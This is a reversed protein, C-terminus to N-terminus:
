QVDGASVVYGGDSIPRYSLGRAMSIDHLVTEVDVANSYYLTLPSSRVERPISSSLRIPTGFQQELAAIIIPLPQATVAFGGRRWATVRALSTDAPASVGGSADVRVAQGPQLTIPNGSGSRSRVQVRGEALAVHTYPAGDTRVSFTTGLVEIAARPTEVVFPRSASKVEFYAEGQLEVTRQEDELLSMTAMTRPYTVQTGGNLEVVSGDPLTHTRTSGPSTTVTIPRSWLWAGAIVLLVVVTAASWAWSSRRSRRSRPGRASRDQRMADPRASTEGDADLHVRVGQWTDEANPVASAPPKGADLLAWLDDYDPGEPNSAHERADKELADRLDPPLDPPSNRSM